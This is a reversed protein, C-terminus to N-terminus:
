SGSLVMTKAEEGSYIEGCLFVYVYTVSDSQDESFSKGKLCHPVNQKHM